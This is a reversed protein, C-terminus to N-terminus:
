SRLINKKGKSIVNMYDILLRLFNKVKFAHSLNGNVKMWGKMYAETGSIDGKFIKLILDRTFFIRISTDNKFGKKYTIKGKSVGIWFNFRLDTIHFQYIADIDIIEELLEDTTQILEIGFHIFKDLIGVVDQDSENLKNIITDISYTSLVALERNVSEINSLYPKEIFM